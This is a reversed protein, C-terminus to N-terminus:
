EKFNASNDKFALIRKRPEGNLTFTIENLEAGGLEIQEPSDACQFEYGAVNYVEDSYFPYIIWDECSYQIKGDNETKNLVIFWVTDNLSSYFECYQKDNEFLIIRSKYTFSNVPDDFTTDNQLEFEIQANICDDSTLYYNVSTRASFIAWLALILLCLGLMLFTFWFTKYNVATKSEAM